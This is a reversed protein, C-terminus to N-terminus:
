NGALFVEVGFAPLPYHHGNLVDGNLLPKLARSEETLDLTVAQDGYNQVFIYTREGSQRATAVVGEPLQMATSATVGHQYAIMQYFDQLFDSGTRAAM